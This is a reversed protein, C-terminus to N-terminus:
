KQRNLLSRLRERLRAGEDQEVFLERPVDAYARTWRLVSARDISELQRAARQPHAFAISQGIGRELVDAEDAGGELVLMPKRFFGAEYFRNARAWRWDGERILMSPGAACVIDVSHYLAPLDEPWRYGGRFCVGPATEMESLSPGADTPHGRILLQRRDPQRAAWRSLAKWTNRCRLIGFWGIRLQQDTAADAGLHGDESGALVGVTARDIKNEIVLSDDINANVSKRYYEELFHPSTSVVLDAINVVTRDLRRLVWAWPGVQTLIERIDGIEVILRDVQGSLKAYLAMETGFAYTLRSLGFRRLRRLTQPAAILRRHYAGPVVHGLRTVPYPRPQGDLYDRDFAAVRVSFGASRVMRIRKHFRPQTAVPLLFTVTPDTM